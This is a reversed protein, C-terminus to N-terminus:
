ISDWFSFGFHTAIEEPTAPRVRGIEFDMDPDQPEPSDWMTTGPFYRATVDEVVYIGEGPADEAGLIDELTLDFLGVECNEYTAAGRGEEYDAVRVYEIQLGNCRIGTRNGVGSWPIVEIVADEPLSFDYDPAESALGPAEVCTRESVLLM